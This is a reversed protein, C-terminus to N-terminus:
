ALAAARVRDLARAIRRVGEPVREAPVSAFSLRLSSSGGDLMFDAGPIFAVGEDKAAPLLEACDVDDGLTLWLFYGGGPVVFDAEPILERLSDVLADRRERLSRRVMDINEALGGSRCLEFVVAEALMNPSIYTENARKALTAIEESPGVLYGVRVGPSVTKSFSSAYVIRGAEDISLMTPVPEDHHFYIEAYPDDELIRLDYDSALEVLRHRKEDSLTCGAPNHFSPIIHVLKPSPGVELTEELYSLNIGDADLPVATLEAGLRHLLLLTRDYSPSEVIV